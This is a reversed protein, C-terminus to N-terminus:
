KLYIIEKVVAKPIKTAAGLTGDDMFSDILVVYEGSEYLFGSQHVIAVETAIWEDLEEKGRWNQDTAVIDEWEVYVFPYQIKQKQEVPTNLFLAFVLAISAFIIKM